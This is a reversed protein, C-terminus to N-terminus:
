TELEAGDDLQDSKEGPVLEFNFMPTMKCSGFVVGVGVGDGVGVGVGVAVGVGDPKALMEPDIM